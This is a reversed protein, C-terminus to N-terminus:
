KLKVKQIIRPPFTQYVYFMLPCLNIQVCLKYMVETSKRLTKKTNKKNNKKNKNKNKNKNKKM